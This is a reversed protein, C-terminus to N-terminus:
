EDSPEKVGSVLETYIKTYRECESSGSDCSVMAEEFFSIADKRTSFFMPKNYCKVKILKFFTRNDFAKQLEADTLPKGM